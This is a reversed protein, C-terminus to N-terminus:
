TDMQLKIQSGNESTANLLQLSIALEQSTIPKGFDSM